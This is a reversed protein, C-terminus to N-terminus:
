RSSGGEISSQDGWKFAAEVTTEALGWAGDLRGVVTPGFLREAAARRRQAPTQKPSATPAEEGQKRHIGRMHAISTTLSFLARKAGDRAAVAPGRVFSAAYEGWTTAFDM